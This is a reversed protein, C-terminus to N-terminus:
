LEFETQYLAVIPGFTKRHCSAPGHRRIADLHGATGYGKHQAFGYVPFEGDLEAMLRDRTVKAIVSAASILLSKVDGKVISKSPCPLGKVPRGDVLSFEPLPIVAEVAETMARWTAQLINIKDIEPANIIGIGIQAGNLNTLAAFLEERRIESLAKSDTLGKLATAAAPLEAREFAVAAAVVPGALSGRGAEDVGAIFFFGANWAEKEYRLTDM